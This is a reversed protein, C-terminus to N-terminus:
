AFVLNENRPAAATRMGIRLRSDVQFVESRWSIVSDALVDALVGLSVCECECECASEYGPEHRSRLGVPSHRPAGPRVRDGFLARVTYIEAAASRVPLDERYVSSYETNSRIRGGWTIRGAAVAFEDCCAVLRHVEGCLIM